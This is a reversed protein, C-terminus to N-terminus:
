NHLKLKNEQYTKTKEYYFPCIGELTIILSCSCIYILKIKNDLYIITLYKFHIKFIFFRM